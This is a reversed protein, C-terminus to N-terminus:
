WPLPSAASFARPRPLPTGPTPAPRQPRGTLRGNRWTANSGAVLGPTQVAARFEVANDRVWPSQMTLVRQVPLQFRIVCSPVPTTIIEVRLVNARQVLQRAAANAPSDFANACGRESPGVTAAAAARHPAIDDAIPGAALALVGTIAAAGLLAPVVRRRRRPRAACLRAAIAGADGFRSVARREAEARTAGESVGDEIASLVHDRAEDLARGRARRGLPGLERRLEGLLHELPSRPESV